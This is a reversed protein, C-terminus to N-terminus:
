QPGLDVNGDSTEVLSLFQFAAKVKVRNRERVVNASFRGDVLWGNKVLAVAEVTHSDVTVIADDPFAAIAAILGDKTLADGDGTEFVIARARRTGKAGTRFLMDYYGNEIWGSVLSVGTVTGGVVILLASSPFRSMADLLAAKTLMPRM